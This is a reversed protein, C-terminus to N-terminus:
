CSRMLRWLIEREIAPALVPIDEPRDLLRLLRVVPDVLDNTLDSVAIAPPEIKAKRPAGIELLLAAIVDRKLKLGFGLFPEDESAQVVRGSLPATTCLDSALCIQRGLLEAIFRTPM